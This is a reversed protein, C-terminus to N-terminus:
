LHRVWMDLAHRDTGRECLCCSIPARCVSSAQQVHKVISVYGTVIGYMCVSINQIFVPDYKKGCHLSCRRDKCLGVHHVGARPDHSPLYVGQRGKKCRTFLFLCMQDKPYLEMKEFWCHCHLEITLKLTFIGSAAHRLICFTCQVYPMDTVTM